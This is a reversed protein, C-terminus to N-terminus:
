QLDKNHKLIRERLELEAAEEQRMLDLARKKARKGMSQMALEGSLGVVSTKTVEVNAKNETEIPRGVSREVETPRKQSLEIRNETPAVIEQKRGVSREVYPKKNTREM